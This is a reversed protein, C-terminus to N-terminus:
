CCRCQAGYEAATKAVRSLVTLGALTQIENIDQIGAVFLVPRGMETARGVAEDIAVLGAIKRVWLKKGSRAQNIFIAVFGGFILMWIALWAKSMDFRQMTPIAEDKADVWDSREGQNDISCIRYTYTSELQVSRDVWSASGPSAESVQEWEAISGESINKREIIYSGVMIEPNTQAGDANLPNFIDSMSLSWTLDLSEGADNPTDVVMLQSPPYPTQGIATTALAFLGFLALYLHTKQIM